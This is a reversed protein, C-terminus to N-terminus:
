DGMLRIKTAFTNDLGELDASRQKNLAGWSELEFREPLGRWFDRLADAHTLKLAALCTDCVALRIWDTCEWLTLPFTGKLRWSEVQRRLCTRSEGCRSPQRCGPIKAPEWLFDSIQSGASLRMNVYERACIVKDSMPLELCETGQQVGSVIDAVQAISCLQYYATPLFWHISLQRGLTILATLGMCDIDFTPNGPYEDLEMVFATALHELARMSLEEVDYKKSLRLVGCLTRWHTRQPPPLFFRYDLLAKLFCRTEEATDQLEVVPCGEVLEDGEPQPFELMSEFVPSAKALLGGYVRFLSDGAKIVLTGDTFWLEDKM